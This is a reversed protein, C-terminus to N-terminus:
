KKITIKSSFIFRRLVSISLILINEWSEFKNRMRKTCLIIYPKDCSQFLNSYLHYVPLDRWLLDLHHGLYKFSLDMEIVTSGDPHKNPVTTWILLPCMKVRNHIYKRTAIAYLKQYLNQRHINNRGHINKRSHIVNKNKANSSM